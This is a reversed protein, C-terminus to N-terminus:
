IVERRVDIKGTVAETILSQRFSNLNRVTAEILDTLRDVEHLQRDISTVILKQEEYDPYAIAQQKIIEGTILPQATQSAFRNLRLSLLAYYLYKVHIAAHIETFYLANDTIWAPVTVHHVNGCLAGVRGVVVTPQEVNTSEGYTMVGNGGIVPVGSQMDNEKTFFDGSRVKGLWRLPGVSWHEPVQGIWEVGSDKMPANPDLGKTVAETIIAQRQEQLLAILREKDAILSDIQETRSDCYSEICAQEELPPLPVREDLYMSVDLNQIGTTQKISRTTVRGQYLMYHVYLMFRPRALVKNTRVRAVFNSCVAGYALDYQIVAGVPQLDGGGSKELLLDGATLKCSEYKAVPISRLTYEETKKVGLHFRDFDAVRICIRDNSGDPEDGWVGAVLDLVTSKLRFSMWHAPIEDLWDIGGSCRYAQYPKVETM